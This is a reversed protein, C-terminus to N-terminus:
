AVRYELAALRMLEVLWVEIDPIPIHAVASLHHEELVASPDNRLIACIAEEFRSLVTGQEPHERRLIDFGVLSM